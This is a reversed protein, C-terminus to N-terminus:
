LGESDFNIEDTKLENLCIVDPEASKIYELLSNEKSVARLGNINWSSITIKTKPFKGNGLCFEKKLM